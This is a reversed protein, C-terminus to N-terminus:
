GSGAWIHNEQTQEPFYRTVYEFVGSSYRMKFIEIYCEVNYLYHVPFLMTLYGFLLCMFPVSRSCIIDLEHRSTAM